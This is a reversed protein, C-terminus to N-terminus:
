KEKTKKSSKDEAPSIDDIMKEIIMKKIYVDFSMLCIFSFRKLFEQDEEDADQFTASSFRYDKLVNKILQDIKRNEMGFVENYVYTMDKGPEGKFYKETIPGLLKQTDTISM